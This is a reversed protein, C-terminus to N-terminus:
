RQGQVKSSYWDVTMNKSRAEKISDEKLLKHRNSRRDRIFKEARVLFESWNENVFEGDQYIIPIVSIQKSEDLELDIFFLNGSEVLKREVIPITSLVKEFPVNLYFEEIGQFSAEWSGSPHKSIIYFDEKLNGFFKLEKFRKARQYVIVAVVIFVATGIVGFVPGFNWLFYVFILPVSYILKKM